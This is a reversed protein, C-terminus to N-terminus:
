AQKVDLDFRHRALGGDKIIEETLVSTCSYKTNYQILIHAEESHM